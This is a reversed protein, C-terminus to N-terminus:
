CCREVCTSDFQIVIEGQLLRLLTPGATCIGLCVWNCAAETQPLSSFVGIAVVLAAVKRASKVIHLLSLRSSPANLNSESFFYNNTLSSIM